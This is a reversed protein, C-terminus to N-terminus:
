SYPCHGRADHYHRHDRDYYRYRDYRRHRDRRDRRDHRHYRSDHDPREHRREYRDYSWGRDYRDRDRHSNWYQTSYRRYGPDHEFYVFRHDYRPAYRQFLLHPHVKYRYLHHLLVPCAEHHYYEDGRRYCRDTCQYGDYSVRKPTRYYYVPPHRPESRLGIHLDVGGIEFRAGFAFSAHDAAAPLAFLTLILPILVLTRCANRM